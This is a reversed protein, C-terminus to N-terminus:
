RRLGTRGAAVLYHAIQHMVPAPPSERRTTGEAQWAGRSDTYAVRYTPGDEYRGPILEVGVRVLPVESRLIGWAELGDFGMTVETVEVDDPDAEVLPSPAPRMLVKM